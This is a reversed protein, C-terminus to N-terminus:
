EVRGQFARFEKNFEKQVGGNQKRLTSIVM